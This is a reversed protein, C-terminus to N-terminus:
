TKNHKKKKISRSGGLDVRVSVSKGEVVSKRARGRFCHCIAQMEGEANGSRQHQQSPYNGQFAPIWLRQILPIVDTGLSSSARILVAYTTIGILFLAGISLLGSFLWM